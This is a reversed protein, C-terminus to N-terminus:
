NISAIKVNTPLLDHGMQRVFVHIKPLIKLKWITRWFIRHPSFCVKKLILWSYGSKTSFVGNTAHFWIMRDEPGDRLIPLECIKNGLYEGYLDHM